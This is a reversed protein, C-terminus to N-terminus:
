AKLSAPVFRLRAAVGGAEAVLLDGLAGGVEELEAGQAISLRVLREADDPLDEIMGRSILLTDVAGAALARYTENWGRTGRHPDACAEVLQAQREETLRSVEQAVRTILEERTGDFALDPAEAIRGPLDDDLQSRMASIAKQTGGLVLVGDTGVEALLRERLRKQHRRVNEDQARKVYDTRTAGRVGTATAARKSVGVDAAEASPWDAHVEDPGTLEDHEFRYVDAHMSSLVALVAPRGVKLARVAPALVAGTEWRVLEHPAYPLPEAYWLREETAFACWGDYPLIRGFSGLGSRVREVAREFAPLEAPAQGEIEARLGGLAAELRKLWAPGKGPDENERAIYVSLTLHSHLARFLDVVRGHTLAATDVPVATTKM